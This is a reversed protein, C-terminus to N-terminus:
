QGYCVNGQFTMDISGIQSADIPSKYVAGRIDLQGGTAGEFLGLGGGIPVSSESFTFLQTESQAPGAQGNTNLVIRSHVPVNGSADYALESEADDCSISHIFHLQPFAAGQDSGVLACKLKVAHNKPGYVLAVVGLTTGEAIANNAIKGQVPVCDALASASFALALVAIGCPLFSADFRNM